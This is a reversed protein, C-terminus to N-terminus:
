NFLILDKDGFLEALEQDIGRVRLTRGYQTGNPAVCIGGMESLFLFSILWSRSKKQRLLAGSHIDENEPRNQSFYDVVEPYTLLEADDGIADAQRARVVALAVGTLAMIAWGVSPPRLSESLRLNIM